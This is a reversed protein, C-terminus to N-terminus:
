RTVIQTQKCTWFPVLNNYSYHDVIRVLYEQFETTLPLKYARVTGKETGAYLIKSSASYALQTITVNSLLSNAVDSGM